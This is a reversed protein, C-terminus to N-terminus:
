LRITRGIELNKIFAEDHSVVLIAGRYQNLASELINTGAIDLNNTPEDLILMDPAHNGSILAALTARLLEGGSLHRVIKHAASNKFGFNAAVAHATNKNIGAADMINDLVTKNPSLVSLDQNLYAMRGNSIVRGTAPPLQAAIIRLLTTKGCGNAGAIRVREGRTMRFSVDCLLPTAGYSFSINQVNLLEKQEGRPQLIPIKISDTQLQHSIDQRISIQQQLKEEIKRAQRGANEASVGRLANAAIRSRRANAKDKQQKATHRQATRMAALRTNNLRSIEKTAHTYQSQLRDAAASKAAVYADYNGPYLHLGDADLEMIVSMQNLLQRDHSVIIVGGGRLKLRRFLDDRARADLNNTPEDLLLIDAGSDFARMLETYQSQGGSHNKHLFMQPMLYVSANRTIRGTAPQLQGAIIRLLTTKGCGNAGVIAVTHSTDFIASVSSFLNDAGTHAFSVNSLSISKM